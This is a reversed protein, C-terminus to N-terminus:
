CAVASLSLARVPRMSVWIMTHIADAFLALTAQKCINCEHTFTEEKVRFSVKVCSHFVQIFLALVKQRYIRLFGGECDVRSLSPPKKPKYALVPNGTM